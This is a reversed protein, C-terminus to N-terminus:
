FFISTLFRFRKNKIYKWIEIKKGLIENKHVRHRMCLVTETLTSKRTNAVEDLGGGVLSYACAVTLSLGPVVGKVCGWFSPDSLSHASWQAIGNEMKELSLLLYKVTTELM